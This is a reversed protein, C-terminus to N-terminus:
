PKLLRDETEGRHQTFAATDKTVAFYVIKSTYYDATKFTRQNASDWPFLGPSIGPGTCPVIVSSSPPFKQAWRGDNLQSWYHFDWSHSDSFDVEDGFLNVGVRLAIRYEAAPDIASDFSDIQRFSSIELGAKHAEVYETALRAFYDALADLGKDAGAETYIREMESIDVGLDSELIANKDRLAYSMCNGNSHADDVCVIETYGFKGYTLLRDGVVGSVEIYATDDDNADAGVISAFAFTEGVAECTIAIGNNQLGGSLWKKVYDTLPVSIWGDAENKVDVTIVSSGDVLSKAEDYPTFYSGWFATVLGLHLLTPKSESIVKLFLRAGSVEDALFEAGIDFRIFTFIDSGDATKGALMTNPAVEKEEERFTADDSDKWSVVTLNSTTPPEQTSGSSSQDQSRCATVSVLLIFGLMLAGSHLLTKQIKM